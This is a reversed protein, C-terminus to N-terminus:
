ARLLLDIESIQGDSTISPITFGIKIRAYNEPIKNDTEHFFIELTELKLYSMSKAVADQINTTIQELINSTINSTNEFLLSLINAGFINNVLREDHNTLLLNKFNDKIQELVNTNMDFIGFRPSRRIPTIIGIPKTHEKVKTARNVIGVNKFEIKNAVIIENAM